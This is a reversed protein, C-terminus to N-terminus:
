IPTFYIQVIFFPCSPNEAGSEFILCRQEILPRPFNEPADDFTIEIRALRESRAAQRPKQRHRKGRGGDAVDHAVQLLKTEDIRRMDAGSAQGRLRPQAEEHIGEHLHAIKRGILPRIDVTLDPRNGAM